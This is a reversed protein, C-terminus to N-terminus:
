PVICYLTPPYAENSILVFALDTPDIITDAREVLYKESEKDYSINQAWLVYRDFEGAFFINGGEFVLQGDGYVDLTERQSIEKYPNFRENNYPDKFSSQYENFILSTDQFSFLLGDDLKQTAQLVTGLAHAKATLYEANYPDESLDNKGLIHIMSCYKDKIEIIAYSEEEPNIVQCIHFPGRQELDLNQVLFLEIEQSPIVLIDDTYAIGLERILFSKQTIERYPNACAYADSDVWDHDDTDNYSLQLEKFDEILEESLKKENSVKELLEGEQEIIDSVNESPVNNKQPEAQTNQNCATFCLTVLLAVLIFALTKKM